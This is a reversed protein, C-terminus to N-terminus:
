ILTLCEDHDLQIPFLPKCELKWPLLRFIHLGVERWYSFVTLEQEFKHLSRYMLWAGYQLTQRDYNIDPSISQNFSIVASVLAFSPLLLLPFFTKVVSPEIGFRNNVEEINLVRISFM